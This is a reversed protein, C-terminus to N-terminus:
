HSELEQCSGGGLRCESLSRYEGHWRGGFGERDGFMVLAEGNQNDEPLGTINEPRLHCMIAQGLIHGIRFQCAQKEVKGQDAHSM